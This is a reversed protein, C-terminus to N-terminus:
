RSQIGISVVHIVIMMVQLICTDNRPIFTTTPPRKWFFLSTSFFLFSPDIRIPLSTPWTATTVSTARSIACGPIVHAVVRGSSSRRRRRTREGSWERQDVLFLALCSAIQISLFLPFFFSCDFASNIWQVCCHCITSRTENICTVNFVNKKNYM